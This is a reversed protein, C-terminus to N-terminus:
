FEINLILGVNEDFFYYDDKNKDIFYDPDLDNEYTFSDLDISVFKMTQGSPGSNLGDQLIGEIRDFYPKFPNNDNTQNYYNFISQASQLNKPTILIDPNSTNSPDVWSVDDNVKFDFSSDDLIANRKFEEFSALLVLTISIYGM